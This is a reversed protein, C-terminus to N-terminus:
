RVRRTTSRRDYESGTSKYQQPPAEKGYLEASLGTLLSSLYSVTSITRAYPMRTPGIVGITGAVQDPLGYRCIVVSYNQIIESLNERGIIVEVEDPPLERPVVIKLLRRQDILELLSLTQQSNVFEPQNLMLHLGDIYTETDCEEDEAQMMKAICDTIQQETPSLRIDRALIQSSTLGSYALNLRNSVITLEASPIAQDFTILQQRVRAGRLILILLVLSDELTILELRKFQCNTSHPTTVIAMNQTLQSILKATLRLWEELEQEVQHFLHRILCQEVSPLEINRLLEVYYRYGKDLPVSGASSHQRVIYGEKELHTMENRITASSVKLESDRAVSQSAVPVAKMIYQGVISKLITETRSSLM